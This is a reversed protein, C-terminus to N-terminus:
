RKTVNFVVIGAVNDPYEMLVEVVDGFISTDVVAIYPGASSNFAIWQADTVDSVIQVVGM